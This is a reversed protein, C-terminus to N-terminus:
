SGVARRLQPEELEEEREARRPQSHSSPVSGANRLQVVFHGLKERLQETQEDIVAAAEVVDASMQETAHATEQAGRIDQAVAGMSSSIETVRTALQRTAAFQADTAAFIASTAQDVGAIVESLRRLSESSLAAAANVEKIQKGIDNTAEHTQNALAKVEDAVISFGRGAEGARAAEIRANIALLNTKRAVTAILDTIGSIHRAAAVLHDIQTKADAAEKVALGARSKSQEANERVSQATSSL